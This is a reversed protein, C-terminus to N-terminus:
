KIVVRLGPLLSDTRRTGYCYFIVSRILFFNRPPHTIRATCESPVASNLSGAWLHPQVLPLHWVLAPKGWSLTCSKLFRCFFLGDHCGAKLGQCYGSWSRTREVYLSPLSNHAVRHKCHPDGSMLGGQQLCQLPRQGQM